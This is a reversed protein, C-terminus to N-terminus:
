LIRETKIFQALEEAATKHGQLNPHSKGGATNRTLECLYLDNTEGGMSSIASEASSFMGENMMNYCWVIPVDKGYIGRIQQILEKVKKEFNATSVNTNQDNTGLNIVVLDPIRTPTYAQAQSRFYSQKAFFDAEVFDRHGDVVGIGTCGVVSSDVGLEEATLFAFAQTGDSYLANGADSNSGAILNGYGCSISDGIFEIYDRERPPAKMKGTFELAKLVSLFRLPETQKLVRITHEGGEDFDALTFVTDSPTVLFREQVREGDVYITFYTNATCSLYLKVEEKMYATFEIGSATFDCSIGDEIVSSRGYIKLQDTIEALPYKKNVIVEISTESDKEDEPTQAEDNSPPAIDDSVDENSPEDKDCSVFGVCLLCAMLIALVRVIHKSIM